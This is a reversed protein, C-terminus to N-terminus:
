KGTITLTIQQKVLQYTSQLYAATEKLADDMHATFGAEHQPKLKGAVIGKAVVTQEMIHQMLAKFMPDLAEEVLTEALKARDSSAALDQALERGQDILARLAYALSERKHRRYEAEAIPILGIVTSYAQRQFTLISGDLDGREIADIIDQRKVGFTTGVQKVTEALAAYKQVRVTLEKTVVPTDKPPPLAPRKTPGGQGKHKQNRPDTAAYRDVKYPARSGGSTPGTM